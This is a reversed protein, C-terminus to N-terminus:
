NAIPFTAGRDADVDQVRAHGTPLVLLGAFRSEGARGALARYSRSGACGAVALACARRRVRQAVDARHDTETAAFYGAGHISHATALCANGVRAHKSVDKSKM